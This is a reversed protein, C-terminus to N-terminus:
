PKNLTVVKGTALSRDIGTMMRHIALANACPSVNPAGELSAISRSAHLPNPTTIVVADAMRHLRAPNVGEVAVLEPRPHNRINALHSVGRGLAVVAIRLRNM